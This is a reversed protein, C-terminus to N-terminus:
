AKRILNGLLLAMLLPLGFVYIVLNIVGYSLGFPNNHLWVINKTYLKKATDAFPNGAYARYTAEAHTCRVNHCHRSCRDPLNKTTPPAATENVAIMLVFPFTVLFLWLAFKKM